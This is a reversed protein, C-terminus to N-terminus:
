DEDDKGKSEEFMEGALLAALDDAVEAMVEGSWENAAENDAVEEDTEDDPTLDNLSRWDVEGAVEHDDVFDQGAQMIQDITRM